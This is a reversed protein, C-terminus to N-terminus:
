ASRKLMDAYNELSERREIKLNQHFRNIFEDASKDVDMELSPKKLCERSREFSKLKFEDAKVAAAAAATSDMRQTKLETRFREIFEDASQDPDNKRTREQRSQASVTVGESSSSLISKRSAKPDM